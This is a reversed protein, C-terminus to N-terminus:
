FVSRLSRGSEDSAHCLRACPPTGRGVMGCVCVGGESSGSSEKRAVPMSEPRPLREPSLGQGGRALSRMLDDLVESAEGNLAAELVRRLMGPELPPRAAEPAAHQGEGQGRGQGQGGVLLGKHEVVFRDLTLGDRSTMCDADVITSSLRSIIHTISDLLNPRDRCSLTIVSRPDEGPEYEAPHVDVTV